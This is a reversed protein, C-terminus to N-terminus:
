VARRGTLLYAAFLLVMLADIAIALGAQHGLYRGGLGLMLAIFVLKSLGAVVLVLGRVQPRFAGYVLMAGILAILAGWNRVVIEALPGAEIAEGFLARLAAAPAIAAQLMTLTLLGSALMIWKMRAVLWAM